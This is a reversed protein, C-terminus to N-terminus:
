LQRRGPLLARARSAARRTAAFDTSGFMLDVENVDEAIMVELIEILEGFLPTTVTKRVRVDCELDTVVEFRAKFVKPFIRGKQEKIRKIIEEAKRIATPRVRSESASVHAINTRLVDAYISVFVDRLVEKDCRDMGKHNQECCTCDGEFVFITDDAKAESVGVLTMQGDKEQAEYLDEVSRHCYFSFLEARCWMRRRYTEFDCLAGTDTHVAKPAVIVFISSLSAFIPLTQIALTQVEKSLQPISQYDVWLYCSERQWRMQAAIADLADVMFKYHVNGPNDPQIWSLWQHSFFIIKNRLAVFDSVSKVTPMALLYHKNYAEEYSTLMGLTNFTEAGMLVM